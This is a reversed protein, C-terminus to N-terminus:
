PVKAVDHQWTDQVLDCSTAYSLRGWILLLTQKAENM